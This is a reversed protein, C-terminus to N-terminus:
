ENLAQEHLQWESIVCHRIDEGAIVPFDRCVSHDETQIEDLVKAKKNLNALCQQASKANCEYEVKASTVEHTVISATQRVISKQSSLTFFQFCSIILSLDV